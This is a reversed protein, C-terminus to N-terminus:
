QIKNYEEAAQDLLENGENLLDSSEFIIDADMTSIGERFLPMAQAYKELASLFVSHFAEFKKPVEVEQLDEYASEISLTYADINDAEEETWLSPDSKDLSLQGIYTLAEVVEDTIASIENAYQEDEESLQNSNSVAPIDTNTVAPISITNTTATTNANENTSGQTAFYIGAGAGIVIVAIIIFIANKKPKQEQQPQQNDM